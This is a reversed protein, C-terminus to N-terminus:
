KNEYKEKLKLYEQYDPDASKELDDVIKKYKTTFGTRAFQIGDLFYELNRESEAAGNDGWSGAMGANFRKQEASDKIVKKIHQILDENDDFM